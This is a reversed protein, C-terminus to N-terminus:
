ILFVQHAIVLDVAPLAHEWVVDATVCNVAPATVGVTLILPQWASEDPVSVVEVVPPLEAADAVPTCCRDTKSQALGTHKGCGETQGCESVQCQKQRKAKQAVSKGQSRYCCACGGESACGNEGHGCSGKAHRECFLKYRGDACICGMRPMSGLVALPIMAWLVVISSKSRFRRM